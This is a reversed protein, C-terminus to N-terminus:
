GKFHIERGWFSQTVAPSVDDTKILYGIAKNYCEFLIGAQM